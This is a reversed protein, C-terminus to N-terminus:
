SGHWAMTEVDYGSCAASFGKCCDRIQEGTEFKVPMRINRGVERALGDGTKFYQSKLCKSILYELIKKVVMVSGAM